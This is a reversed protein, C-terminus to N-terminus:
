PVEIFTIEFSEVMGGGDEIGKPTKLPLSFRVNMAGWIPHVYTFTDWTKHAQYFLELLAMNHQPKFTTDVAGTAFNMFYRMGKFELTFIRQDPSEPQVTYVWSKGMQIRAGSDPYDNRVKHFPFDFVDTSM